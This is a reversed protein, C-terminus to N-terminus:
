RNNFNKQRAEQERRKELRVSHIIEKLDFSNLFRDYIQVQPPRKKHSSRIRHKYELVEDLDDSKMMAAMEKGECVYVTYRGTGFAGVGDFDIDIM